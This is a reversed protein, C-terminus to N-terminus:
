SRLKTSEVLFRRAGEDNWDKFSVEPEEPAHTAREIDQQDAQAPGHLRFHFESPLKTAM